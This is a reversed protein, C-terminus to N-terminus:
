DDASSGATSRTVDPGGSGLGLLEEAHARATASGPHGSLMRSIEIVREDPGVVAADTVTRGDDRLTKRVVIQHEAFAAVQPLHTVVLVQRDDAVERLARALALAAEGGVGADVEDFVMTAPGDMAVLRLALMTRALEGGSAVRALPALAEGPNAGLLFRVTDGAGGAEVEVELRAGPMALAHLRAEAARALEPAAARRRALLEAEAAALDEAAAAREAELQEARGEAGEIEALRTASTREFEIVESLTPGYKRRLDALQRRRQQVEALREPDDEWNDVVGRLDSALDTVEALVAGLRASWAAFPRRDGLAARSAGLTDLAGPTESRSDGELAALASAAAERHALLDALREEEERLRDDEDPGDLRAAEIEAIQHRLVDADRARQRADGGLETLRDELARVRARAALRASPDIGGFADLARRQAAPTLLSQQDHQGHIDALDPAAETLAGVPVMRGDIWARSRGSARVGRAVIIEREDGGGDTQVFRAEILAEGAGARVVGPGARGGLVLALADVLLTKGAGTEGTLATMGPGLTITLDDVVGLDRVRLDSLV